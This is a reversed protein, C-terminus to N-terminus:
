EEAEGKTVECLLNWLASVGASIGAIATSLIATKLSEGDHVEFINSAAVAAVFAEIFTKAVREAVNIWDIEKLKKLM